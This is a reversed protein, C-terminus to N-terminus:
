FLFAVTAALLLCSAFTHMWMRVISCLFTQFLFTCMSRLFPHPTTSRLDDFLLALLQVSSHQRAILSSPAKWHMSRFNVSVWHYLLLTVSLATGVVFLIIIIAVLVAFAKTGVVWRACLQYYDANPNGSLLAIGTLMSTKFFIHTGRAHSYM